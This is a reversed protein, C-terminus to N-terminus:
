KFLLASPQMVHATRMSDSLALRRLEVFPKPSPTM